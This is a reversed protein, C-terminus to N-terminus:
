HYVNPMAVYYPMGCIDMSQLSMKIKQCIYTRPVSDWICGYKGSEDQDLRRHCEDGLSVCYPMGYVVM